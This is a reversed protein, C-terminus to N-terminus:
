PYSAEFATVSTLLSVPNAQDVPLERGGDPSIGVSSSM